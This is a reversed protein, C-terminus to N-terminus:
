DLIVPDIDVATVHGVGNRLAAATGNGSGCGLILLRDPHRHLVAPLDYQSIGRVEAPYREPHAAIAEPRFDLMSQYGGSNNVSIKYVEITDQYAPIPVLALKQYPSWKVEVAGAERGALAALPVLAIALAADLRRLVAAVAAWAVPPLHGASLLVFLWVGVLSGAMNVSYARITRPHDSLMRGLLRGFPLFLDWVLVLLVLTFGLGLILYTVTQAPSDTVTKTFLLVDGFANLMLSLRNGLSLLSIPVLLAFLAVLPTLIDRLRVPHQCTWCGVGLGLFCVVLITNQLYAFIRVETGIWRILALELFLSAVSLV